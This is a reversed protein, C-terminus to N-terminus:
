PRNCGKKPSSDGDEEFSEVSEIKFMKDQQHAGHDQKADLSRSDNLKLEPVQDELVKELSKSPGLSLSKRLMAGISLRTRTRDEGKSTSFSKATELSTANKLGKTVDLTCSLSKGLTKRSKKM